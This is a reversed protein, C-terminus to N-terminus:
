KRRRVSLGTALMIVFLLMLSSIPSPSKGGATASCLNSGEAGMLPDIDLDGRLIFPVTATIGEVSARVMNIGEGPLFDVTAFGYADTEVNMTTLGNEMTGDGQTVEFSVYQFAVGSGQSNLVRVVLPNELPEGVLGWQGDGAIYKLDTTDLRNVDFPNSQATTRGDTIFMTIQEAPDLVSFAFSVRGAVMPPTIHPSFRPNQATGTLSIGLASTYGELRRESPDRAEITVTFVQGQDQPSPITEIFFHDAGEEYNYSVTIPGQVPTSGGESTMIVKFTLTPLPALLPFAYALWAPTNADFLSGVPVFDSGDFYLWTSGGDQSVQYTIATGEPISTPEYFLIEEWSTIMQPVTLTPTVVTAPGEKYHSITLQGIVSLEPTPSVLPRHDKISLLHREDGLSAEEIYPAVPGDCILYNGASLSTNFFIRNAHPPAYSTSMSSILPTGDISEISCHTSADKAAILLYNANMPIRFRSAMFERPYFAIAEGGTGDGNAIAGIPGDAELHVAPGSGTSGANPLAIYGTSHATHFTQTGDSWSATISTNDNLAAVYITGTAAGWLENAAPLLPHGDNAELTRHYAIIPLDSTIFYSVGAVDQNVELSTADTVSFSTLVGSGDSITVSAAGTPSYFHFIDTSRQAPYVFLTGAMSYPVPIDSCDELAQMSYPGTSRIVGRPTTLAAVDAPGISVPTGDGVSFEIDGTLSTVRAQANDPYFWYAGEVPQTFNFIEEWSGSNEFDPNGFYLHLTTTGQPMSEMRFWLSGELAIFNFYELWTGTIETGDDMFLRLDRGSVHALDFLEGPLTSLDLMVPYQNLTQGSQNSLVLQIRNSWGPAYWDSVEILHASYGELVGDGVVSYQGTQNERPAAFDFWATDTAGLLSLTFILFFPM